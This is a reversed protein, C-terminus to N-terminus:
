PFHMWAKSWDSIVAAFAEAVQGKDTAADSNLRGSSVLASVCAEPVTVTLAVARVRRRQRYRRQREAAAIRPAVHQQLFEAAAEVTEFHRYAPWDGALRAAAPSTTWGSFADPKM